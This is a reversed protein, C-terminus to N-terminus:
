NFSRKVVWFLMLNKLFNEGGFVMLVKSAEKWRWGFTEVGFYIKVGVHRFKGWGPDYFLTWTHKIREQWKCGCCVVAFCCNWLFQLFVYFDIKKNSERGSYFKRKEHQLKSIFVSVQSSNKTTEWNEYSAESTESKLPQDVLFDEYRVIDSSITTLKYM